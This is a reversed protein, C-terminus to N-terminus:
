GNLRPRPGRMDRGAPPAHQSGGAARPGPLPEGDDGRGLAVTVVCNQQHTDLLQFRAKANRGKETALDFGALHAHRLATLDDPSLNANRPNEPIMVNRWQSTGGRVPM